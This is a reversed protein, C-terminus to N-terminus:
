RRRGYRPWAAAVGHISCFVGQQPQRTHLSCLDADSAHRLGAVEDKWPAFSRVSRTSIDAKTMRGSNASRGFHPAIRGHTLAASNLQHHSDVGCAFDTKSVNAGLRLAGIQRELYEHDFEM